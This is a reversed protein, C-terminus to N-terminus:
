IADRKPIGRKYSERKKKRKDEDPEYPLAVNTYVYYNHAGLCEQDYNIGVCQDTYKGDALYCGEDVAEILNEEDLEWCEGWYHTAFYQVKNIRAAEACACVFAKTFEGIRDPAWEIDWRYNLLYRGRGKASYCGIKTWTVDCKLNKYYEYTLDVPPPTSGLQLEAVAPDVPVNNMMGEKDERIHCALFGRKGTDIRRMGYECQCGYKASFTVGNIREGSKMEKATFCKSRCTQRDKASKIKFPAGTAVGKGKKFRCELDIGKKPVAVIESEKAYTIVGACAIILFASVVLKDM